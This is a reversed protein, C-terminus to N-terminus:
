RCPVPLHTTSLLTGPPRRGRSRKAVRHPTVGRRGFHGDNTMPGTTVRQAAIEQQRQQENLGSLAVLPLALRLTENVQQLPQGDVEHFSSRLVEHRALLCNLSQQLREHALAGRLEVRVPVNYLHRDAEFRDLFWLRQQAFSLPLPGDRKVAVLPPLGAPTEQSKDDILLALAAVTGAEFLARLQLEVKCAGANAPCLSQYRTACSSRKRAPSRPNEACSSVPVCIRVATPTSASSTAIRSTTAYILLRPGLGFRPRGPPQVCGRAASVFCM